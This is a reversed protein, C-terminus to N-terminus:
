GDYNPDSRPSRNPIMLVLSKMKKPTKSAPTDQALSASVVVVNTDPSVVVSASCGVVAAGVISSVVVLAAPQPLLRAEVGTGPAPRSPPM